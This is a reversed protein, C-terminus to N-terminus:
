EETEFVTTGLNHLEINLTQMATTCTVTLINGSRITIYVEDFMKTEDGDVFYFSPLKYRDHIIDYQASPMAAKFAEYFGTGVMEDLTMALTLDKPEAALDYQGEEDTDMNHSLNQSFMYFVHTSSDLAYSGDEQQKNIIVRKVVCDEGDNMLFYTTSTVEVDYTCSVTYNSYQGTSEALAKLQEASLANEKQPDLVEPTSETTGPQSGNPNTNNNDNSNNSCAALSMVMLCACLLAIIKKM